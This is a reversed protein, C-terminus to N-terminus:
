LCSSNTKLLETAISDKLALEVMVKAEHVIHANREMLFAKQEIYTTLARDFSRTEALFSEVTPGDALYRRQEETLVSQDVVNNISCMQQLDRYKTRLLDNWQKIEQRLQKEYKLQETSTSASGSASFSLLSFRLQMQYRIGCIGPTSSFLSSRRRVGPIHDM